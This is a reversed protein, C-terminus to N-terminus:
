MNKILALDQEVGEEGEGQWQGEGGWRQKLWMPRDRVCGPIYGKNRWDPIQTAGRSKKTKAVVSGKPCRGWAVRSLARIEEDALRRLKGQNEEMLENANINSLQTSASGWGVHLGWRFVLEARKIWVPDSTCACLRGRTDRGYINTLHVSTQFVSTILDLM